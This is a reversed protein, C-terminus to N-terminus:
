VGQLHSSETVPDKTVEDSGHEAAVTSTKPVTMDVELHGHPHARKQRRRLAVGTILVGAVVAGAIISWIQVETM